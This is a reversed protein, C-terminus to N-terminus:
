EVAVIGCHVTYNGWGASLVLPESKGILNIAYGGGGRQYGSHFIGERVHWSKSWSEFHISITINESSSFLRITGNDGMRHPGPWDSPRDWLSFAPTGDSAHDKSLRMADYEGSAALSVNGKGNLELAPGYPTAVQTFNADGGAKEPILSGAPSGNQYVIMPIILTYNMPELTNIGVYYQYHYYQGVPSSEVLYGDYLYVGALIAVVAIALGVLAAPKRMM